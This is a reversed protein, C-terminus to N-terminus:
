RKSKSEKASIASSTCTQDKKTKRRISNEEKTKVKHCENCLVQLGSQDCFLRAIYKNYDVQGDAGFVGTKPDVVPDIHDVAVSKRDKYKKCTACKFHVRRLCKGNKSEVFYEKKCANLTNSSHPSNRFLRRLASFAKQQLIWPKKTPM